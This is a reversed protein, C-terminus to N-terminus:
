PRALDDLELYIREAVRYRAVPVNSVMLSGIGVVAGEELPRDRGAGFLAVVHPTFLPPPRFAGTSGPEVREVRVVQDFEPAGQIAHLLYSEGEEGGFLIWTEELAVDPPPPVNMVQRTYVASVEFVAGTVIPTGGREFHGRYLTGRFRFTEGEDLRTLRSLPFREPEMTYVREGSAARDARLAARADPVSTGADSTVTARLVLQWDHPARYLPLHSLYVASDGFVLMGHVGMTADDSAHAHPTTQAGAPSAALLALALLRLIRRPM